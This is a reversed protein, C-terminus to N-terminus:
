LLMSIVHSKFAKCFGQMTRLPMRTIVPTNDIKNKKRTLLATFLLQSTSARDDHRNNKLNPNQNTDFVEVGAAELPCIQM